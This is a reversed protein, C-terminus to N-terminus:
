KNRELAESFMSFVKKAWVDYTANDKIYKIAKNGAKRNIQNKNNILFRITESFEKINIPNCYYVFDKYHSRNEKYDWVIATKGISLGEMICLAPINENDAGCVLFLSKNYINWKENESVNKMQKYNVNLFTAYDSFDFGNGITIFRIDDELLSLAEIIYHIGKDPSVRGSYCIYNESNVKDRKMEIVPFLVVDSIAESHFKCLNKQAIYQSHVIIDFHKLELISKEWSVTVDRVYNKNKCFVHAPYDLIQCGFLIDNYNSSKCINKIAALSVLVRQNLGFVIDYDTITPRFVGYKKFSEKVDVIHDYPVINEEEVTGCLHVTECYKSLAEAFLAGHFYVRDGILLVKM